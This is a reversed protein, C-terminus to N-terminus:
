TEIEIEGGSYQVQEIGIWNNICNEPPHKSSFIEVLGEVKLILLM